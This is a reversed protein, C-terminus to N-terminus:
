FSFNMLSRTVLIYFKKKMTVDIESLCALASKESLVKKGLRINALAGLAM